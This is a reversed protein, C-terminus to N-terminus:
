SKPSGLEELAALTALIMGLEDSRLAASRADEMYSRVVQLRPAPWCRLAILEELSDLAEQIHEKALKAKGLAANRWAYQLQHVAEHGDVKHM